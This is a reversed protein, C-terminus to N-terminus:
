IASESTMKISCGCNPLDSLIIYERQKIKKCNSIFVSMPLTYIFKKLHLLIVHIRNNRVCSMHVSRHM